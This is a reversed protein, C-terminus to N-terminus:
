EYLAKIQGWSSEENPVDCDCTADPNVIVAGGTAAVLHSDPMGCDVMVPGTAGPLSPTGHPGVQIITCPASPSIVAYASSGLYIDGTYCSGYAISCGATPDIGGDFNGQKLTWPSNDGFFNWNVDSIDARFEIATAGPSFKHFYYLQVFGAETVNCTTGDMDGFVMVSGGQAFAFSACCILALTLILAKKM